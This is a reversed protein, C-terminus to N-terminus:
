SSSAGSAAGSSRPAPGLIEQVSDFICRVTSYGPKGPITYHIQGNTSWVKETRSDLSLLRLLKHAPGTLEEVMIFRSIGREKELPTPQPMAHKRQKLIAVKHERSRLRVIFPPPKNDAPEDQVYQRYCTDIVDSCPPISGLDGANSAADLLPFLFRDYISQACEGRSKPVNFIRITSSRLQQERRNLSSKMVKLERHLEERLNDVDESVQNISNANDEIAATNTAVNQTLTNLTSNINSIQSSIQDVKQVLPELSSLKAM